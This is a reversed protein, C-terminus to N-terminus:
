GWAYTTTTVAYGSDVNLTDSRVMNKRAIQLAWKQASDPAQPDNIPYQYFADGGALAIADAARQAETHASRLSALDVALAGMALIAFLSVAVFVVTVGHENGFRGTGVRAPMGTSTRMGVEEPM